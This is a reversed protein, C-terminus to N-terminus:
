GRRYTEQIGIRSRRCQRGSPSYQHLTRNLQGYTSKLTNGPSLSPFPELSYQKKIKHGRSFCLSHPRTSYSVATSTHTTAASSCSAKHWLPSQGLSGLFIALLATIGRSKGYMDSQFADNKLYYYNNDFQYGGQQGYPYAANPDQYSQGQNQYQYGYNTDQSYRPPDQQGAPTGFQHGCSNCFNAEDANIKGCIQCQKM